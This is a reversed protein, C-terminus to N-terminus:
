WPRTSCTVGTTANQTVVVQGDVAIECHLQPLSGSGCDPWHCGGSASVFAWQNPNALTTTYVLPQDATFTAPVTTLYQSSNADFASQSPPDGNIYRVNGTLNGTATVTYTVQHGAPDAASAAATSIALAGAVVVTAVASAVKRVNTM